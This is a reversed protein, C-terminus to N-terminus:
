AEVSCAKVNKCKFFLLSVQLASIVLNCDACNTCVVCNRSAELTRFQLKCKIM